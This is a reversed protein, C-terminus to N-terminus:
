LFLTMSRSLIVPPHINSTIIYNGYESPLLRCSLYIVTCALVIVVQRGERDTLVNLSLGVPRYV